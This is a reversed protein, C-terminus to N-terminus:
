YALFYIKITEIMDCKSIFTFVLVSYLNLELRGVNEKLIYEKRPNEKKHFKKINSKTYNHRTAM